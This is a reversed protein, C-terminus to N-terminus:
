PVKKFLFLTKLVETCLSISAEIEADRKEEEEDVLPGLRRRKRPPELPPPEQKM